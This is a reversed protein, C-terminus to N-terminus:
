GLAEVPGADALRSRVLQGLLRQAATTTSLQGVPATAESGRYRVTVAAEGGRGSETFTGTFTDGDYMCSTHQQAM